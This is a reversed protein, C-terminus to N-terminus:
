WRLAATLRFCTRSCANRWIQCVHTRGDHSQTLRSERIAERDGSRDIVSARDGKEARVEGEAVDTAIYITAHADLERLIPLAFERDDHYGDDMPYCAFRRSFNREILRQYVEEINIISSITRVCIRWCLACFSPHSRSIVTPSSNAERAPRVHHLTFIAGIGSCIPRMLLHAGSFYLAGLGARM